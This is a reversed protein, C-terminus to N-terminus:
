HVIQLSFKGSPATFLKHKCYGKRRENQEPIGCMARESGPATANGLTFSFRLGAFDVFRM